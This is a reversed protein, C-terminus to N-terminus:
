ALVEETLQSDHASCLRGLAAVAGPLPSGWGHASVRLPRCSFWRQALQHEGRGPTPRRRLPSGASM